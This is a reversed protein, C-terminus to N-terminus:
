QAPTPTPKPLPVAPTTTHTKAWKLYEKYDRNSPDLPIHASDSGRRIATVKGDRPSLVFQYTEAFVLVPLAFLCTVLFIIKM